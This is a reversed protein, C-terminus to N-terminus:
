VSVKVEIGLARIREARGELWDPDVPSLESAEPQHSPRALTYLHVGAIPIEDRVIGALCELYAREEDESPPAGHWAFCCTQIWTPCSKAAIKLKSLHEEPSAHCANIRASGAATASDLKFWVEGGLQAMREVAAVVTPKGLMSGNTILLVKVSGLLGHERLADAVVNVAAAFDPSTTPEGNGSFAVDVLRRAGEPVSRTLFDGDVIAGLMERLENALLKLDLAPGKGYALGPVQCYVCRWNCANNPNLNVGVSVGGARRSVVPYVYTMGAVDRDHDLVSLQGIRGTRSSMVDLM